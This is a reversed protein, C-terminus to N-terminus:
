KTLVNRERAVADLVGNVFSASEDAGFRRAVEIAEDIVVASPTESEILLEYIAVRLVNRDVRALRELQWHMARLSIIEDIAKLNETVGRLLERTRALARPPLSFEDLVADFVTAISGPEIGAGAEAAFLVQLAAERAQRRPRQSM